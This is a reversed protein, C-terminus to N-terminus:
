GEQKGAVDDVVKWGCVLHQPKSDDGFNWKVDSGIPKDCHRCIANIIQLTLACDKHQCPGACLYESGPKPTIAWAM